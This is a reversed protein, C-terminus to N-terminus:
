NDDSDSSTSDSLFENSMVEKINKSTVDSTGPVMVTVLSSSLLTVIVSPFPSLTEGVSSAVTVSPVRM